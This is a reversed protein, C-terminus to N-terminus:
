VLYIAMSSAVRIRDKCIKRLMIMITRDLDHVIHDFLEGEPDAGNPRIPPMLKLSTKVPMDFVWSHPMHIDFGLHRVQVAINLARVSCILRLSILQEAVHIIQVYRCLQLGPFVEVVIISRMDRKM